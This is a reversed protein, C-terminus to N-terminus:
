VSAIEAADWNIGDIFDSVKSVEDTEVRGENASPEIFPAEDTKTIERDLCIRVAVCLVWIRRGQQLLLTVFGVNFM